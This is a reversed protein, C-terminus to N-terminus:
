KLCQDMVFSSSETNVQIRVCGAWDALRADKAWSSLKSQRLTKGLAQGTTKNWDAVFEEQSAGSASWGKVADLKTVLLLTKKEKEEKKEGVEQM